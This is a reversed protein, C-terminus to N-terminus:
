PVTYYTLYGLNSLSCAFVFMSTRSFDQMSQGLEDMRLHTTNYQTTNHQTTNYWTDDLYISRQSVTAWQFTDKTQVIEPSRSDWHMSQDRFRFCSPREKGLGTNLNITKHQTTNHQTTQHEVTENSNHQTNKRISNLTTRYISIRNKFVIRYISNQLVNNHVIFFTVEDLVILIIYKLVM